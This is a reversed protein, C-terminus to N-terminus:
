SLVRDHTRNHYEEALSAHYTALWALLGSLEVDSLQSTNKNSGGAHAQAELFRYWAGVYGMQLKLVWAGLVLAQTRAAMLRKDLRLGIKFPDISLLLDALRRRQNLLRQQNLNRTEIGNFIEDVVEDRVQQFEDKLISLDFLPELLVSLESLSLTERRKAM